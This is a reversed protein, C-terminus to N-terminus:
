HLDFGSAALSNRVTVHALHKVFQESLAEFPHSYTISFCHSYKQTAPNFFPEPERKEVQFNVPMEVKNRVADIDRPM